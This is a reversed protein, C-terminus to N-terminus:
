ISGRNNGAPRKGHANHRHHTQAQHQEASRSEERRRAPSIGEHGRSESYNLHSEAPPDGQM